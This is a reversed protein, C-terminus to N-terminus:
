FEDDQYHSVVDLSRGDFSRTLLVSAIPGFSRTESHGATRSEFWAPPRWELLVQGSDKVHRRCSELLSIRLEDSATNALNGALLVADFRRDLQLSEIQACVTEADHVHDLMEQSEDVAVVSHGLVVLPHTIRGPGSGLDLIQSGPSLAEDILEPEGMTPLRLYLDVSCGDRNTAATM